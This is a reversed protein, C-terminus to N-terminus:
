VGDLGKYNRARKWTTGTYFLTCTIENKKLYKDYPDARIINTIIADVFHSPELATEGSGKSSAFYKIKSTWDAPFTLM